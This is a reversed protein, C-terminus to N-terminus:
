TITWAVVSRTNRGLTYFKEGDPKFFMGTPWSTFANIPFTTDFSATSLDWATSLDYQNVDKGTQGYVYLRTGDNKFCFGQPASEENFVYLRASDGDYSATSVDWATSLSYRFIYRTTSDLVYMKTGDTKFQVEQPSTAQTSVSFNQTYSATSVDWATSLSYENVDDGFYGVVYMQKGDESGGDNRFFIGSPNTEQTAVSFTQTFSATEVAWATSLSYENIDNGADGVVYMQSGDGKFFLAQPISDQSLVSFYDTTPYSFSATSIDWSTSLDYQYLADTRTGLIYMRSGDSKFFCDTPNTDQSGVFFRQVYSATSIDWATSLSYENVDNGSDAMIFMQKGDNSSGDNRFFIGTPTNDQTSVSFNQNYSATSVDWATSLDYENVEDGGSGVIYMKTGDNKFFLGRVVSEETSFSFSQSYSATSIDWATTLDYENVDDGFYGVVYM